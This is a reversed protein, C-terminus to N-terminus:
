RHAHSPTSAVEPLTNSSPVVERRAEHEWEFLLILLALHLLNLEDIPTEAMSRVILVAFLGVSTWRSRDAHRIAARGLIISYVLLSILGFVGSTGLEQIVQNHAQGAWREDIRDAYERFADPGAGFIPADRWIEIGDSWLQTRGTLTRLSQVDESQLLDNADFTLVAVLAGVVLMGATAVVVTRNRAAATAFWTIALAVIAAIWAAKSQSAVLTLLSVVMVLVRTLGSSPAFREMLMALLPYMALQNPHITLGQFRIPLGILTNGYDRWVSSFQVLSFALSALMIGVSTWKLLSAATRSGPRPGAWLAVIAFAFLLTSQSLEGAVLETYIEAFAFVLAGALVLRGTPTILGGLSLIRVFALGLVLVLVLTGFRLLLLRPGSLGADIGESAMTGTWMAAAISLVDLGVYAIILGAIVFTDKRVWRDLLVAAVVGALLLIAAAFPLPMASM